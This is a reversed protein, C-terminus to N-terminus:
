NGGGKAPGEVKVDAKINTDGGGGLIRDKFVFFLVALVALVLIVGALMGFGSGRDGGETVIVERERDVM